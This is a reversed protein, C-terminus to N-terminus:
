CIFIFLYSINQLCITLMIYNYFPSNGTGKNIHFSCVQNAETRNNPTLRM